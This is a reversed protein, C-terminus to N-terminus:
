SFISSSSEFVKVIKEKLFVLSKLVETYDCIKFDNIKANKSFDADENSKLYLCKM